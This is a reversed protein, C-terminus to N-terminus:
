TIRQIKNFKTTIKIKMEVVQIIGLKINNTKIKLITRTNTQNIITIMRHKSNIKNILMIMIFIMKIIMMTSNIMFLM